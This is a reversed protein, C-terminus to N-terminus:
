PDQGSPPNQQNKQYQNLVRRRRLRSLHDIFLVGNLHDIEHQLCTALLEGAEITIESATSIDVAKIVVDAPRGVPARVEPISLCGEEHTNIDQSMDVVTPNALMMPNDGKESVDAVIIRLLVGVQNGALGVGGHKYMTALMRQAIERTEDTVESVPEAEQRLEDSPYLLIKYPSIDNM